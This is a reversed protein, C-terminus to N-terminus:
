VQVMAVLENGLQKQAEARKKAEYLMIAKGLSDRNPQFPENPSLLETLKAAVAAGQGKALVADAAELYTKPTKKPLGPKRDSASADFPISAAVLNARDQFDAPTKGKEACVRQFYKLESETWEEIEGKDNKTAKREVGTVEDLGPIEVVNNKPDADQGHLFVARFVALWSRYLINNTAETLCPNGEGTEKGWPNQNFEEVTAPVQVPVDIGLSSITKQIM